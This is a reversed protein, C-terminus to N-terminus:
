NFFSKKTTKFLDPNLKKTESTWTKAKIHFLLENMKNMQITSSLNNTWKFRKKINSCPIKENLNVM